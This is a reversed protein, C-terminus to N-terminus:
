GSAGDESLSTNRPSTRRATLTGSCRSDSFLSVRALHIRFLGAVHPVQVRVAGTVSAIAVGHLNRPSGHRRSITESSLFATFSNQLSTLAPVRTEDLTRAASAPGASIGHVNRKSILCFFM